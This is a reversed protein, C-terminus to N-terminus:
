ANNKSHIKDGIRFLAYIISGPIGALLVVPIWLGNFRGVRVMDLSVIITLLINLIFMGLFLLKFFGHMRFHRCMRCQNMFHPGGPIRSGGRMEQCGPGGCSPQVLGPRFHFMPGNFFRKEHSYMPSADRGQMQQVSDPKPNNVPVPSKDQASVLGVFLVVSLVSIFSRM